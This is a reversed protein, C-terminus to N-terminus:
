GDGGPRNWLKQCVFIRKVVYSGVYLGPYPFVPFTVKRRWRGDADDKDEVWCDLTIKELM